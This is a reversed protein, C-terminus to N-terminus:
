AADELQARVGQMGAIQQLPLRMPLLAESRASLHHFTNTRPEHLDPLDYLGVELM